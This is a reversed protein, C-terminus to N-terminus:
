VDESEIKARLADFNMLGEQAGVSQIVSASNHAAMKMAFPISCGLFRAAIFTAGYADGAGTTEVVKADYAPQHYIESNHNYAYSGDEGDTVVIIGKAMEALEKLLKKMDHVELRNNKSLVLKMAEERNLILTDTFELFNKLDHYGQELQESGPNWAICINHASAYAFLEPIIDASEGTLSSLYFWKTKIQRWDHVALHNNAGRYLFMTHDKGPVGVIISLATHYERNRMVHNTDVGASKLDEMLLSGTGEAGISLITSVKLGLHAFCVATNTGGGGYTFEATEPIIKSGYEFAILKKAHSGRNHLIKGKETMFFVDRSAGGITVCDFM